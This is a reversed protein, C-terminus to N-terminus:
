ESVEVVALCCPCYYYGNEVNVEMPYDCSRCTLSM